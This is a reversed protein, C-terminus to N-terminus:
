VSLKKENYECLFNIADEIHSYDLCHVEKKKGIGDPLTITLRGGLHERFQEIGTIVEPLGKNNKKKLLDDWVPLGCNVFGELINILDIRTILEMRMAIYSDISIGISVAMGHGIRYSSMTELKHAAWHGFDLPRASGFEFPDGNKRIHDLHLVACRYIAEEMADSNRKRLKNANDTLFGFFDKDKIIAVKFAESIGGIWHEFPLTKLFDYDNIIAFAPAFTGIFNKQRLFNVSNKVGVGADNQSLTTSPLRIFRLGRHSIATAFGAMDLLAGGGIAMVFSQRDLHAEGIDRVIRWVNDMNDKISEGGMLLIPPKVLELRDKHFEFYSDIKKILSDYKKELGADVYIIIRQKRNESYRDITNVIIHNEPDFVNRTFHVPYEFPVRISQIYTKVSYNLEAM